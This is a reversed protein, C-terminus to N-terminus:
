APSRGSSACPPRQPQELCGARRRRSSGDVGSMRVLHASGRGLRARGSSACSTPSLTAKVCTASSVSSAAGCAAPRASRPLRRARCRTRAASGVAPEDAACIPAPAASNESDGHQSQTRAPAGLVAMAAGHRVADSETVRVTGSPIPGCSRRSHACAASAAAASRERGSSVSQTYTDSVM